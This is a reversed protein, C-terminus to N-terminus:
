SAPNPRQENLKEAVDLPVEGHALFRRFRATALIYCECRTQIDPKGYPNQKARDFEGLAAEYEALLIVQIAHRSEESERIEGDPQLSQSQWGPGSNGHSIHKTDAM